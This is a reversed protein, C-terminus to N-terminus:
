IALSFVVVFFTRSCSLRAARWGVESAGDGWYDVEGLQGSPDLRSWHGTDGAVSCVEESVGRSIVCRFM